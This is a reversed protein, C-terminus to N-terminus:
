EVTVTKRHEWEGHLNCREVAQLESTEDLRIKVTVSPSVSPTLHLSALTLDGRKLAIWQISHGPESPHTLLRGVDITVEFEKGASVTDPADIVPLHKKELDTPTDLDEVSNVAAFLDDTM